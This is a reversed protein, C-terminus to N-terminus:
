TVPVPGFQVRSSLRGDPALVRAYLWCRQGAALTFPLTSTLLGPGSGTQIKRWPGRFFNVAATQPEGLFWAFLYGAPIAEMLLNLSPASSLTFVDNWVAGIPYGFVTPGLDITSLGFYVRIMNSRIFQQQGTLQIKAGLANRSFSGAAYEDWSSREEPTLGTSWLASVEALADRAELQLTTEPDEPTVRARLYQGGRNHSAVVEGVAGSGRTVFSGSWLLPFGRQRERDGTQTFFFDWM